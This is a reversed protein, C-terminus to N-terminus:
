INLDYEDKAILNDIVNELFVNYSCGYRQQIYVEKYFDQMVLKSDTHIVFECEVAINIVGSALVM